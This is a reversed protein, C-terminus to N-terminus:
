VTITPTGFREESTISPESIIQKFGLINGSNDRTLEIWGAYEMGQLMLNNLRRLERAEHHLEESAKKYYLRAVVWTVLAGLLIGIATSILTPM